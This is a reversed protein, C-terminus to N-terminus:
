LQHQSKCWRNDDRSYACSTRVIQHGEVFGARPFISIGTDRVTLFSLYRRVFILLRCAPSPEDFRSVEVRNKYNHERVNRGRPGTVDYGASEGRMVYAFLFDCNAATRLTSCHTRTRCLLSLMTWVATYSWTNFRLPQTVRARLM